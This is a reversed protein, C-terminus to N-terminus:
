RTRVRKEVWGGIMYGIWIKEKPSFKKLDRIAFIVGNVTTEKKLIRVIEKKIVEFRARTIGLAEGVTESM